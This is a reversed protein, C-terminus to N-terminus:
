RLNNLRVIGKCSSLFIDRIDTDTSTKWVEYTVSASTIVRRIEVSETLTRYPLRAIFENGDCNYRMEQHTSFIKESELAFAFSGLSMLIVVLLTKM